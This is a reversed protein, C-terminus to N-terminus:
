AAYYQGEDPAVKALASDIIAQAHGACTGCSTAVGLEKAISELDRHGAVVADSIEATRIAHCLCVYMTTSTYILIILLILQM